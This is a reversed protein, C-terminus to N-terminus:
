GSILAAALEAEEAPVHAATVTAAAASASLPLPLTVPLLLAKAVRNGDHARALRVPDRALRAPFTFVRGPHASDVLKLEGGSKFILVTHGGLSGAAPIFYSLLKAEEVATGGAVHHRLAVVSEIFCGNPLKGPEVAPVKAGGRAVHVWGSIGADIDRLLPGFDAKEAALRDRHLSFSQTGNAPHYFWLIGGLEFVLAHTRNPYVSGRGTQELRIVQSWVDAGLLDQAQRTRLLSEDARTSAALCLALALAFLFRTKM